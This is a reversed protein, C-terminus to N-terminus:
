GQICKLVFISKALRAMHLRSSESLGLIMETSEDVLDAVALCDEDQISSTCHRAQSRDEGLFARVRLSPYVPQLALAEQM